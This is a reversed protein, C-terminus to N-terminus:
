KNREKEAIIFFQKGFLPWLITLRLYLKVLILPPRKGDAMTYPLFKPLASVIKFDALRLGEALSLHSLPLYHDFFDWYDHGVYKVNPGLCFIRGQPKLCRKAQRLTDLLSQKTPLHEFFNSTFVVDLSEYELNWRASCDQELFVVDASVHRRGDPNLDMAFKRRAQINNIFEGWGCGLDLIVQDRGIKSQLFEKIIVRWVSNRYEAIESFRIAYEKQLDNAAAAM